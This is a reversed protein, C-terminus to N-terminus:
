NICDVASAFDGICNYFDSLWNLTSAMRKHDGLREFIPLNSSLIQIAEPYQHHRHMFILSKSARGLAMKIEDGTRQGAEHCREAYSAAVDLDGLSVHAQTLAMYVHVLDGWHEIELLLKESDKFLDVSRALDRSYYGWAEERLANATAYIEKQTMSM